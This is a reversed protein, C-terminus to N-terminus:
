RWSLCFLLYYHIIILDKIIIIIINEQQGGQNDVFVELIIIWKKIILKKLVRPLDTSVELKMLLQQKAEVLWLRAFQCVIKRMETTTHHDELKQWSRWRMSSLLIIKELRSVVTNEYSWPPTVLNNRINLMNNIYYYCNNM